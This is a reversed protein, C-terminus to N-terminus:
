VAQSPWSAISRANCSRGAIIKMSRPLGTTSPNFGRRMCGPPLLMKRHADRPICRWLRPATRLLRAKVSTKQLRGVEVFDRRKIRVSRCLIM